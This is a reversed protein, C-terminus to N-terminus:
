RVRLHLERLPRLFFSRDYLPFELPKALVFESVRDLLINFASSIQQRALAAGLCFHVGIGFALHDGANSRRVDFRFPDPFVSEDRNASLYAMLLRDGKRIQQGGLVYDEQAHRLFHRVPTAMRIIEDVANEVLSPDEKVIRLQEPNRAFMEIGKALSNSTTDHGATAAITAAFLIVWNVM